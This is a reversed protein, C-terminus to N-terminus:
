LPHSFLYIYNIHVATVGTSNRGPVAVITVTNNEEKFKGKSHFSLPEM